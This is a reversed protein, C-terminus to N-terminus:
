GACTVGSYKRNTAGKYIDAYVCVRDNKNPLDLVWTWAWDSREDTGAQIKPHNMDKITANVKRTWGGNSWVLGYNGPCGKSWKVAAYGGVVGKSDRLEVIKGVVYNGGCRADNPNAYGGWDKASAVTPAGMSLVVAAGIAVAARTFKKM